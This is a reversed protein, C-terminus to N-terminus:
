LSAHGGATGPRSAPRADDPLVDQGFAARLQSKRDPRAQLPTRAVIRAAHKRVEDKHQLRHEIRALIFLSGADEPDLAVARRAEVLAEETKGQTVLLQSKMQPVFSLDPDLKGAADLESQANQLDYQILLAAGYTVHALAYDPTTTVVDGLDRLAGRVDQHTLANLALAVRQAPGDRLRKALELEERGAKGEKSAAHGVTSVVAARIAHASPSGPLLKLVATSDRDAADIDLPIRLSHMARLGLAAGVAQADNLVVFDTPAPANARGAYADYVRGHQEAPLQDTRDGLFIGYYSFRGSPDVPAREDPYAYVEAVMAPVELSRLAAVGLAALELPYLKRETNDTEIARLTEAATLPAEIRPEIRSWDVYARAARRASLAAVIAEARESASTKSAAARQAFQTIAPTPTLLSALREPDLSTLALVDKRVSEADIPALPVQGPVHSSTSRLRWSALAGVGLLVVVMSWLVLRWRNGSNEQQEM